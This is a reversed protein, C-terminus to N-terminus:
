SSHLIPTPSSYLLFHSFESTPTQNPMKSKATVFWQLTQIIGCGRTPTNSLHPQAEPVPTIHRPGFQWPNVYLCNLMSTKSAHVMSIYEEERTRVLGRPGDLLFACASPAALSFSAESGDHPHPCQPCQAQSKAQPFHAGVAQRTSNGGLGLGQAGNLPQLM